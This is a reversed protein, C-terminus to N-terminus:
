EKPATRVKKKKPLPLAAATVRCLETFWEEDDLRDDILFSPKAGPYAPAEEVDGIFARGAETPKIFVQNDCVLAVVKDNVYVAYEGFMQRYRVAGAGKMQGIVYDIFDRDTAM